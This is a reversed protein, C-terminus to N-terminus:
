KSKLQFLKTILFMITLLTIVLGFGLLLEYSMNNGTVISYQVSKLGPPFIDIIEGIGWYAINQTLDNALLLTGVMLGWKLYNSNVKNLIEQYQVVSFLLLNLFVMIFFRSSVREGSLFPVGSDFFPKYMNGISLFFLVLIPFVIQKIDKHWHNHLYKISFYIIFFLGIIGLYYNFEWVLVNVKNEIPFYAKEPLFTNILGGIMVTTTPFGAMFEMELKKSLLAAPLIRYINILISFLVSFFVYKKYKSVLLLISLFFLCWVFHHYGGSLFMIFLLFSVKAVWKMDIKRDSFLDFILDFFFPFLFYSTWTLHGVSLHSVIHGNFNFILFLPIFGLIALNYKKKMIILAWFGFSYFILVHVVIFEKVNIINLLFVDPSLIQDPISLFLNTVDLLGVEQISYYFPIKGQQVAQQIVLLRPFTIDAWDLRDDPINGYNLFRVWLVIGFFYLVFLLIRELLRSGPSNDRQFLSNIIKEFKDIIVLIM